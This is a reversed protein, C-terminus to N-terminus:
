TLPKPPQPYKKCCGCCVADEFGERQLCQRHFVLGEASKWGRRSAQLGRLPGSVKGSGFAELGHEPKGVHAPQEAADDKPKQLLAM